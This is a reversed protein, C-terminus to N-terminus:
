TQWTNLSSRVKQLQTQLRAISDQLHASEPRTSIAEKIKGLEADINVNVEKAISITKSLNETMLNIMEALDKLEDRKRLKVRLGLNGKAIQYLSKEIRYVPGAIKHSFLLAMIFILPSVFLLNRMLAINTTKFVYVLRGQPYVNALKEGLLTWGTSFVTYGTVLSAILAIVFVIGIYRFQLGKKIIYQRRFINPRSSM